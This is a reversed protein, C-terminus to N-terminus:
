TVVVGVTAGLVLAHLEADTLRNETGLVPTGM